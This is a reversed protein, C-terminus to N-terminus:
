QVGMMVRYWARQHDLWAVFVKGNEIQVAIVPYGAFAGKATLVIGRDLPREMDQLIIPSGTSNGGDQVYKNYVVLHHNQDISAMQIFHSLSAITRKVTVRGMNDLLAFHVGKDNESGTFWVVANLSDSAVVSPGDEPCGDIVWHDGSFVVPKSFLSDGSSRCVFAIDRVSDQRLSRYVVSVKGGPSLAISNRCCPCAFSDLLVPKSFHNVGNAEAYYLPRGKRSQSLGDGLWCFALRGSPLRATSVYSLSQGATSDRLFRYPASWTKGANGSVRYQIFSAYKNEATPVHVVYILWASDRNKFIMKPNNEQNLSTQQELPITAWHAFSDAKDNWAAFCLRLNEQNSDTEAWTAYIQGDPRQAFSLCSATLNGPSLARPAKNDPHNCSGALLVLLAGAGYIIATKM